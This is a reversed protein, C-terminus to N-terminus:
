NKLGSEGEIVMMTAILVAVQKRKGNDIAFVDGQVVNVRRGARLVRGEAEFSQGIAPALLNIKFECTLVAKDEPMTTLAAFGCATDGLASVTGGHVFGHQQTVADSFPMAIVVRGPEVTVVKAGLTNMLGQKYFSGAIREFLPDSM